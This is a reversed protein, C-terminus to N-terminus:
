KVKLQATESKGDCDLGSAATKEWKSLQLEGRHNGSSSLTAGAKPFKTENLTINLPFLQM